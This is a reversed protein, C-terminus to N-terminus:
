RKVQVTSIYSESFGDINKVLSLWYQAEKQTTYPGIRVRYYTKGNVDKIDLVSTIGKTQLQEKVAEARAKTSYAGTQVWYDTYTKATGKTATTKPAPSEAPNKATTVTKTQTIQVTNTPTSTTKTEIAQTTGASGTTTTGPNVPATAQPSPVQIVVSNPDTSAGPAAGATKSTVTNDGYVIIVDGRSAPVTAPPPQLGQVTQPNKVWETPNLRNDSSAPNQSGASPAQADSAPASGAPVTVAPTGTSQVSALSSATQKKTSLLWIAGGIFLLLALGVSTVIYMIQKKEM